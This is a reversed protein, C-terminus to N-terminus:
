YPKCPDLFVMKYSELPQEEILPSLNDFAPDPKVTISLYDTKGYEGTAKLEAIYAANAEKRSQIEKAIAEDTLECDFNFSLWGESAIYDAISNTQTEDGQSNGRFAFLSQLDDIGKKFPMQYTNM